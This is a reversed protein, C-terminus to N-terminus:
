VLKERIARAVAEAVSHVQLKRYVARIHTRVTDISINLTTAVQKYSLGKVLAQLVAHERESLDLRTPSAANFFKGAISKPASERLLLLVTRAVDPTLPSGGSAIAKLQALLEPAPTKKLLYGDAGATIAELIIAPDEFVTLMVVTLDPLHRKLRRTAEIGNIGPLEIDVLAAQWSPDRGASERNELEQLMAYASGFSAGLRFGPTNSFLTELSHRYRPDDEIIIVSLDM